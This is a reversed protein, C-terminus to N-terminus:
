ANQEAAAFEVMTPVIRELPVIREAHGLDIAAKPMGFVICTAQDQAVTRGGAAKITGLAEAGDNGMGTMIVGVARAGCSKAVSRFLVDVSPRHGCAPPSQDIRIKLNGPSGALSMHHDGPAVYAHGPEVFDNNAAEKVSLNSLRDLREAFSRTFGPPMHQTVLIPPSDAPIDPFIRVLTAPGGCSIGIAIVTGDDRQRRTLLPPASTRVVAPRPTTPRTSLRQMHRLNASTADLIKQVLIQAVDRLGGGATGTPKPVYDVAGAELAEFTRAAGHQTHASLMVVPVPTEAMVRRLLEIGDMGPMEVDLTVVDPRLDKIKTLAVPGSGATDIVDIRPSAALMQKITARMLASDDIIIVRIKDNSVAHM